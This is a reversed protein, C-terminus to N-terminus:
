ESKKNIESEILDILEKVPEFYPLVKNADFDFLDDYDGKQRWTFLQSYLKGFRKPFINTIIFNESFNSKVGNHTTPNIDNQLLLAIIAYYASYYLRNIASHWKKNDALIVASEYTDKAKDLRYKIIDSKDGTM